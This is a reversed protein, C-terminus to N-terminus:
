RPLRRAVSEALKRAIACATSPEGASRTSADVTASGDAGYGIVVSCTRQNAGAEQRAPRGSIELSTVTDGTHPRLKEPAAGPGPDLLVRGGVPGGARFQCEPKGGFTGRRGQPLGLDTAVAPDVLDCPDPVSGVSSSSAPRTM